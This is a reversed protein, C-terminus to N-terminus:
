IFNVFLLCRLPEARIRTTTNVANSATIPVINRRDERTSLMDVDPIASFLARSDAISAIMPFIDAVIVM